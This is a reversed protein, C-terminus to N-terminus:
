GCGALCARATGSRRDHAGARIAAASRVGGDPVCGLHGWRAQDVREVLYDCRGVRADLGIPTAARGGWLRLLPPGGRGGRRRRERSRVAQRVLDTRDHVRARGFCGPAALPGAWWGGGAPALLAAAAPPRDGIANGLWVQLGNAVLLGVAVLQDIRELDMVRIRDTLGRASSM